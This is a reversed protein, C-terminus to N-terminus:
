SGSTFTWTGTTRTITFVVMIAENAKADIEQIDCKNVVGATLDGRARVSQGSLLPLSVRWFYATGATELAKVAVYQAETMYCTVLLDDTDGWGRYQGDLYEVMMDPSELHRIDTKERTVTPVKVKAVDTLLTFTSGAASYSVQTNFGHRKAAM